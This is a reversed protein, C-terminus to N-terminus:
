FGSLDPMNPMDISFKQYGPPIEFLSANPSTNQVNRYEISWSGDAAASKLPVDMGKVVWIFVSDKKGNNVFSVQYKDAMKGDIMEQAVLKREIEGPMKEASAIADQPKIPIEMYANQAPMLMWGTNKDVRTIMITEGMEMRVKDKTAYIKGSTAGAASHMAIDASFGDAFVLGASFLGAALLLVLLVAIRKM